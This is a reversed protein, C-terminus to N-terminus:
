LLCDAIKLLFCLGTVVKIWDAGPTATLAIAQNKKKLSFDMITSQIPKNISYASHGNEVYQFIKGRQHVTWKSLPTMRLATKSFWVIYTAVQEMKLAIFPWVSKEVSLNLLVAVGEM